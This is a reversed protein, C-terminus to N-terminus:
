FSLLEVPLHSVRNHYAMFIHGEDTFDVRTIACNNLSLWARFDLDMRLTTRLFLNSFAGHTVIVVRHDQGHHREILTALARRAREAKADDDELRSGWWGDGNGLTDPLHLAPFEAEFWARTNGPLPLKSSRDGDLNFIGDLEHWDPWAVLPLGTAEAIYSGTQVARQMLSTYLHTPQVGDVNQVEGPLGVPNDGGGAFFTAAAGAQRHGLETLPPDPHRGDDSQTTAWLLNNTSQGHRVIYLEM